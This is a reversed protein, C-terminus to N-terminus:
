MHGSRTRLRVVLLVNSPSWQLKYAPGLTSELVGVLRKVGACAIGEAHVLWTDQWASAHM